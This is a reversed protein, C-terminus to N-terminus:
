VKQITRIGVDFNFLYNLSASSVHRIYAAFFVSLLLIIIKLSFLVTSASGFSIRLNFNIFFIRTIYQGEELCDGVLNLDNAM